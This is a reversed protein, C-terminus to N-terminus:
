LDCLSILEKIPKIIQTNCHRAATQGDIHPPTNQSTFTPQASRVPTCRSLKFYNHPTIQLFIVRVVTSVPAKLITSIFHPHYIFLRHGFKKEAHFCSHYDRKLPGLTHYSRPFHFAATSSLRLLLLVALSLPLSSSLSIERLRILRWVAFHTRSIELPSVDGECMETVVLPPMYLGLKLECCRM